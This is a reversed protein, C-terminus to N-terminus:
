AIYKLQFGYMEHKRLRQKQSLVPGSHGQNTTLLRSFTVTRLIFRHIGVDTLNPPTTFHPPQM